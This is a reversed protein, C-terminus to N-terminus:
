APAAAFEVRGAAARRGEPDIAAVAISAADPAFAAELVFPQSEFLPGQNRFEFRRV